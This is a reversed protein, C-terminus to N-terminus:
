HEGDIRRTNSMHPWRGSSHTVCASCAAADKTSNATLGDGESGIARLVAVTPWRNSPDSITRRSPRTGKEHPGIGSRDPRDKGTVGV